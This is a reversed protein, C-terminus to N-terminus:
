PGAISVSGTATTAVLLGNEDAFWDAQNAFSVFWAHAGPALAVLDEITGTGTIASRVYTVDFGWVLQQQTVPANGPLARLTARLSASGVGADVVSVDLWTRQYVGLQTTSSEAPALTADGAFRWRYAHLGRSTLTVSVTAGGDAGTATMAVPGHEDSLEVIAGAVPGAPASLRTLTTSITVTNGVYGAGGADIVPAALQAHAASVTLTTTASSAQLSADGAFSATVAYTGAAAPSTVVTALGQGDTMAALVSTVGTADRVEFAVLAGAIGVGDLTALQARLLAPAGAEAADAVVFLATPTATAVCTVHDVSTTGPACASCTASGAMSITGDPCANCAAASAAGLVPSFTGAPCSLCASGDPSYTGMDCPQCGGARPATGPLCAGVALVISATATAPVHAGSEDVFYDALNAFSATYTFTGAAAITVDTAAIGTADTLVDTAPALGGFDFHVVQGVVPDPSPRNVLQARVRVPEGATGAVDLAGIAVKQYIDRVLAPSASPGLVADGLFRAVISYRGRQPTSARGQVAGNLDTIRISQEISGDPRTTEFVVSAGAVGGAPASVRSLTTFLELGDEVFDGTTGAQGTYVLPDLATAAPAVLLQTTSSSPDTLANGAFSATVTFTGATAPTFVVVAVGSADTSAAYTVGAPQVEFGVLEGALPAGSPLTSLRATLMAPAGAVTPTADVSLATATTSPVCVTHDPSPATGQPCATCSASGALSIAGAPCPTCAVGDASSTGAACPACGALTLEQGPLCVPATECLAGQYGGLCECAFGDVLDVCLGGHQCAAGACDDIDNACTDGAYGPACTCTFGDTANVCTGGNLCPAGSCHDIEVECDTGTYGPDCTCAYTGLGDACTGRGSCASAPCDNPNSECNAGAYGVPCACTYTNNAQLTCAGGNLCPNSTASCVDVIECDAGSYGAPCACTHGNVGDTCTGGHECPNGACDDVDDECTVGAYGPTCACTFGGLADTCAGNVCPNPSCDDIDDECRAGEYGPECACTFGALTNTCAGHVCPDAACHDEPVTYRIELTPRRAIAAHESSVILTHQKGATTLVVGHNPYAGAVWGQVLARVDVSKSSTRTALVIVGVNDPAFAQGFSRYTVTGEDWAATIRKLRIPAITHGEHDGDTCADDPEDEGGNIALTLTASDIVANAPITALDFRLLAENKASVTLQKHAGANKTLAAASITSDAVTGFTGRRITISSTLAEASAGTGPPPPDGCAALALAAVTLGLTVVSASRHRAIAAEQWGAFKM